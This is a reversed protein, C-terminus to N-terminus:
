LKVRLEDEAVEVSVMRQVAVTVSALPPLSVLVADRSMLLRAGTTSLMPIEGLLLMVVLLVNVQLAVPLSISSSLVLM